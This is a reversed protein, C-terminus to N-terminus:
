IPINLTVRTGKGLESNLFLRGDIYKIREKMFTMGMGGDGNNVKKVESPVFGKGDDDIVLSLLSKSHSLSVVIHSSDAYKIANNIAEQTIRYINIETLSDLRNNFDTKNFFLIEKGTLKGLEKALKAIAPVIGHDSLEPPTLNFTATRVGKIINTTLEKLHQIKIATREIDNINISELNYKLGTLMQGIGDHVDKAIRNQEKEQNEIIKSSIIKQQSMKEEFSVTTLREIELQAAKRETIESAIILLESKDETLRYPIISMELWIDLGEKTTSKVEGQWGTKKHQSILDEIFAQENENSTLVNWFLVEKKFKSLKFLRSFKKGMHILNGKSSIRAFLLTEDMAHSLARLEKISKEKSISLKDADFAMKKAKKEASLLDSLTAKVSKATPWFIFLFEGLLILLTLVMLSFELKRLWVVKEDAELDYQNVIKDMIFLFEGENNIIKKIDLALEDISTLPNIELNKVISKSAKQITDFVPNIAEFQQKIKVSNKKPLGLSDNGKQLSTHSLNWLVLTEKIDKKLLNRKNEDFSVTLSVIEKTLKQSLMRQRGAINIVTSDSKQTDLHNRVLIQSIIVSLAITSLAIIYLRSLKDFTKKDLSNGNKTM